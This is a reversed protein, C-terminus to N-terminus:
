QCCLGNLISKKRLVAQALATQARLRGVAGAATLASLSLFKRRSTQLSDGLKDM